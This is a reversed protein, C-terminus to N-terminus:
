WSSITMPEQVLKQLLLPRTFTAGFCDNQGLGHRIYWALLTIASYDAAHEVKRRVIYLQSIRRGTACLRLLRYWSESDWLNCIHRKYFLWRGLRLLDRINLARIPIFHKQHKNKKSRLIDRPSLLKSKLRGTRAWKPVRYLRTAVPLTLHMLRVIWLADKVEHIM